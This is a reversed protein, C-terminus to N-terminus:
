LPNQCVLYGSQAGELQECPMANPCDTAVTCKIACANTVMSTAPVKLVCQPNGAAPGAYGTDCITEMANCLPSCYGTTQSRGPLTLCIHDAGCPDPQGMAPLTCADGLKNVAVAADLDLPAADVNAADKEGCAALAAVLALAVFKQMYRHYRM